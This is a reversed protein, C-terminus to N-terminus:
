KIVATILTRTIVHLFKWPLFRFNSSSLRRPYSPFPFLISYSFFFRNAILSADDSSAARLRYRWDHEAKIVQGM